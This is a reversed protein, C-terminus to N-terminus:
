GADGRELGAAALSGSVPEVAAAVTVEVAGQVGHRYGAQAAVWLGAGVFGLSGCLSLGVAVDASGEFAGECSPEVAADM